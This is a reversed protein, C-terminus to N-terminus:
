QQHHQCSNGAQLLRSYRCRLRMLEATLPTCLVCFPLLQLPDPLLRIDGLTVIDCCLTANCCPQLLTCRLSLSSFSCLLPLASFSACRCFCSDLVQLLRVITSIGVNLLRAAAPTDTFVFVNRQLNVGKFCM